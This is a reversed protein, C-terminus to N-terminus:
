ANKPLFHSGLVLISFLKEKNETKTIRIEYKGTFFFGSFDRSLSVKQQRLSAM